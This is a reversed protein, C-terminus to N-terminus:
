ATRGLRQDRQQDNEISFGWSARYIRKGADRLQLPGFAGAFTYSAAVGGAVKGDVKRCVARGGLVEVTGFLTPKDSM